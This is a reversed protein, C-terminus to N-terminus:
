IGFGQAQMKVVWAPAQAVYDEVVRRRRLYFFAMPVQCALALAIVGYYLASNISGYIGGVDLGLQDLDKKQALIEPPLPPPFVLHWAGYVILVAALALQNWCLLLPARPELRELKRVARLEFFATAALGAIIFIGTFSSWGGCLLSLAAFVALSWGDLKAMGIARRIRKMRARANHLDRMQDATLTAPVSAAAQPGPTVLTAYPIPAPDDPM